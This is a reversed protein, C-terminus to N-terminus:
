QVEGGMSYLGAKNSPTPELNFSSLCPEPSPPSVVHLGCGVQRCSFRLFGPLSTRIQKAILHQFLPPRFLYQNSHVKSYSAVTPFFFWPITDHPLASYRSMNHLSFSPVSVSQHNVSAQNVPSQSIISM